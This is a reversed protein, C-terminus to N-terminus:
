LVLKNKDEKEKLKLEIGEVAGQIDDRIKIELEKDEFEPYYEKMRKLTGIMKKQKSQSKKVNKKTQKLNNKVLKTFNKIKLKLSKSREKLKSKDKSILRKM